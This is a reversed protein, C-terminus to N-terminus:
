KVNYSIERNGRFVGSILQETKVFREWHRQSLQERTVTKRLRGNSNFVRVEYIM